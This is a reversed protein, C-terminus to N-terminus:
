NIKLQKKGFFFYLILIIFESLITSIAAGFIGYRPILILNAFLNFLASIGQILLRLNEKNTALLLFGYPFAFFKFLLAILFFQFIAVSNNFENGYFLLFFEPAIFYLLSVLPVAVLFLKMLLKNFLSKLKLKDSKFYISLRPFYINSLTSPIIYFVITLGYGLSYYGLEIDGIFYSILVSDISLYIVSFAMSLAFPSAKKLLLFNFNFDYDFSFKNINKRVSHILYVFSFSAAIVYAFVIYNIGLEFFMFISLLSFLSTSRIFISISIYKMKEFARLVSSIFENYSSIILHLISIFVIILVYDPKKMYSLVIMSLFITLLALLFKLVFINELYKKFISKDIAMNRTTITSIGFDAIVIFLGAFSLSFSLQGYGKAGLYRTLMITVLFMLGKNFFESIFMWQTNKKIVQNDHKSM